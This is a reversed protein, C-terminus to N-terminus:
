FMLQKHSLARWVLVCNVPKKSNLRKSGNARKKNRRLIYNHHWVSLTRRKERNNTCLDVKPCAVCDKRRIKIKVVPRHSRTKAMSSSCSTHSQARAIEVTLEPIDFIPEGSLSMLCRWGNSIQAHTYLKPESVSEQSNALLM